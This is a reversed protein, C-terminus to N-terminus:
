NTIAKNENRSLWVIMKAIDLYLFVDDRSSVWIWRKANPSVKNDIVAAKDVLIWSVDTKCSSM